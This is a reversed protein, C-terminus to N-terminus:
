LSALWPQLTARAAEPSFFKRTNAYGGERLRQWLVADEHARLVAHVFADTDDALLVDAGDRLHMGEAACSTAVVPLGRAMAQNVKGKVGAGFRLPAVSVRCADLLADLADVQGHLELGPTGALALVQAPANGGVVHLRLAPLRERLRPLIERALWLVADINPLHVFGGVFVLDRRQGFGPTDPALEHINSVVRVRAQPQLQALQEREHESVVWTADAAAVLELEAARTQRARAAATADGAHEAERGERLFHLDVTDFVIKAQPAFRRLLPLLPALVYHRSVVIADFRKGHRQLWDPMAGRWAAPWAEIGEAQLAQTDEGAPTGAADLFVVACGLARLERLIARM